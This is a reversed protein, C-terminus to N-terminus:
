MGRMPTAPMASMGFTMALFMYAMGLSMAALTVRVSIERRSSGTSTLCGPQPSGLDAHAPLVGTLWGLAQLVAWGVLLATLWGFGSVPLAFMYVMAALDAAAAVWLWGLRQGRILVAAIYLLTAATAATFVLKALQASVVAQGNPAYMAIMGLAMLVHISHWAREARAGARLHWVHVAVVAAYVLVAFVRLATPLWRNSMNMESTPATLAVVVVAVIAAAALGARYIPRVTAVADRTM